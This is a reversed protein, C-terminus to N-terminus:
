VQSSSRWEQNCAESNTEFEQMELELCRVQSSSSWERNSSNSCPEFVDMESELRRFKARVGGNGIGLM